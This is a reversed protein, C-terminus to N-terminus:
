RRRISRLEVLTETTKQADPSSRDTFLSDAKKLKEEALLYEQKEFHRIGVRSHVIAIEQQIGPDDARYVQALQFQELAADLRDRPGALFRGYALYYEPAIEPVVAAAEASAKYASEALDLQGTRELFRAYHQQAEPLKPDIGVAKEYAASALVFPDQPDDSAARARRRAPVRRSYLDGIGIASPAHRPNTSLAREFAELSASEEESLPANPDVEGARALHCLGKYYFAEASGPNAQIVAAVTSLAEDYRGGEYLNKVAELEPDAGGEQNPPKPSAVLQDKLAQIRDCGLTALALGLLVCTLRVRM